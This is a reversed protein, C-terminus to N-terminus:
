GMMIMGAPDISLPGSHLNGGAFNLAIGNSSVTVSDSGSKLVAKGEGLTATVDGQKLEIQNSKLSASTNEGMAIKVLSGKITATADGQTLTIISPQLDIFTQAAYQLRIKKDTAYSNGIYIKQNQSAQLTASSDLMTLTTKTDPTKNGVGLLVSGAPRDFSIDQALEPTNNVKAMAGTEDLTLNSRVKSGAKEELQKGKSFIQHATVGFTVGAVASSLGTAVKDFTQWGSDKTYLAGTKANWGEMSTSLGAVAAITGAVSAAMTKNLANMTAEMGTNAGANLSVKNEGLTTINRKVTTLDNEGLNIEPGKRWALSGGILGELGIHAVLDMGMGLAVENKLGVVCRTEEGLVAENKRGMTFENMDGKTSFTLGNHEENEDTGALIVSSKGGLATHQKGQTDDMVLHNGGATHIANIANNKQNVLNLNQQNSGTGAIVPRDIDGDVFSLMVETGKLLPFHHGWENGGYPQVQRIWCSAKGDPKDALDFPLHVK